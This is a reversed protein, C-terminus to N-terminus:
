SLSRTGTESIKEFQGTKFVSLVGGCLRICTEVGFFQLVIKVKTSFFLCRYLGFCAVM